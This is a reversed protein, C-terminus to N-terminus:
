NITTKNHTHTEKRKKAEIFPHGNDNTRAFVCIVTAAITPATRVSNIMSWCYTHVLMEATALVFAVTM